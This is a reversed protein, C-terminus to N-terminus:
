RKLMKLVRQIGQVLADIDERTNYLALSARVTGSIHLADMIPQTCHQGTRVAIGYNDLLIGMDYHQIGEVNFPLISSRKRPNGYLTLGPIARLQEVGYALLEEEYAQLELPDFQSLYDVAAGLGIADAVNPTGAEFKQPLAAFTILQSTVQDIMEGGSQYPPMQELWKEKGYLVGIGMPAYMKHGSFAYFDADLAQVDHEPLHQVAQAADVLVPVGAAHVMPIIKDLPNVTGLSNSVQNLAVLRTKENLMGKLAELDLEGNADFPVVRFHAGKRQCLQYWPVYNSHHELETVIIEDGAHVFAEGYSFAVLNISETTGRTFIVEYPNAANIYRAVKSRAEEFADTARAALTHNGRHVNSNLSFYYNQLAELVVQPKQTTAANDLYVLPHGNVKTSLMPFDTRASLISKSM